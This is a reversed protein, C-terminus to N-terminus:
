LMLCALEIYVIDFAYPILYTRRGGLLFALMAVLLLTFRTVQLLRSRNARALEDTATARQYCRESPLDLHPHYVYWKKPKPIRGSVCLSVLVLLPLIRIADYDGPFAHRYDAWVNRGWVALIPANFPVQSVLLM